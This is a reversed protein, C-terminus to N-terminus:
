PSYVNSYKKSAQICVPGKLAPSVNGSDPNQLRCYPSCRPIIDTCRELPEWNAPDAVAKGIMCISFDVDSADRKWREVRERVM